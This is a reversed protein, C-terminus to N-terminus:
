LDDVGIQGRMLRRLEDTPPVPEELIALFEDFAEDSLVFYTQDLMVDEAARVASELMFESRSKGLVEAARDILQRQQETARLNLPVDRRATSAM